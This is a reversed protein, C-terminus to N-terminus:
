SPRRKQKRRQSAWANLNPGRWTKTRGRATVVSKQWKKDDYDVDHWNWPYLKGNVRDGPGVVIYTDLRAPLPSYAKNEIVKWSDNTNAMRESPRNGQVILATRLSIQAFPKHEGMNWVVAAIVNKGRRLYKSIDITEFYWHMLDGRAPGFCVPTGNVFFRYRNDASVHVVFQKPKSVLNLTKRFVYVGYRNSAGACTIWDADWYRTFLDNNIQM